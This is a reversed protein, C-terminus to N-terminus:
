INNYNKIVKLQLLRNIDKRMENISEKLELFGKDIVDVIEVNIIAEWDGVFDAPNGFKDTIELDLYNLKENSVYLATKDGLISNDIFSSRFPEVNIPIVGLITSPIPTTSTYNQYNQNGDGTTLNLVRIYLEKNQRAVIPETSTISTGNIGNDSPQFGLIEYSDNNFNLTMNTNTTNTFVFKNKYKDYRCRVVNQSTSIINALDIFPYNGPSIQFSVPTGNVNFTFANNFENIETWNSVFSFSLLSIKMNQLIANDLYIAGDPIEISLNWPKEFNERTRSTLYLTHSRRIQNAGSM